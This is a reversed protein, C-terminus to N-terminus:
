RELRELTRIYRSIRQMYKQRKMQVISANPSSFSHSEHHQHCKSSKYHWATKSPKLNSTKNSSMSSSDSSSKDKKKDRRKSVKTPTRKSHRVSNRETRNSRSSQLNSTCSKNSSSIATHINQKETQHLSYSSDSSITSAQPPPQIDDDNSYQKDLLTNNINPNVSFPIVNSSSSKHLQAEIVSPRQENQICFILKIYYYIFKDSFNFM